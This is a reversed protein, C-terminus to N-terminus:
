SEKTDRIMVLMMRTTQHAELAHPIDAPMLVMQGGDLRIPDGGSTITMDGDILQVRADFPASHESRGQRADIAFGVYDAARLADVSQASGAPAVALILLIALYTRKM